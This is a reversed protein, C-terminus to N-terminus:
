GGASDGQLLALGFVFVWKAVLTYGGSNLLLVNKNYCHKNKKKKKNKKKNKKKKKKKKKKKAQRTTTEGTDGAEENPGRKTKWEDHKRQRNRQKNRKASRRTKRRM